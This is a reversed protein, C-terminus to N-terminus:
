RYLGQREASLQFDPQILPKSTPRYGTLLDDPGGFLRSIARLFM